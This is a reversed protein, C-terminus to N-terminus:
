PTAPAPAPSPPPVPEGLAPPQTVSAIKYMTVSAFFKGDAPSCGTRPANSVSASLRYPPHDGSIAIRPGTGRSHLKTWGADNLGTEIAALAQAQDGAAICWAFHVQGGRPAATPSDIVTANAVTPIVPTIEDVTVETMVGRIPATGPPRTASRATPPKRAGSGSGIAGSRAPAQKAAPKADDRCGGCGALAVVALAAFAIVARV